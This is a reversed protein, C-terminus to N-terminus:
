RDHQHRPASRAQSPHPDSGQESESEDDSMDEDEGFNQPFRAGLKGASNTDLQKGTDDVDPLEALLWTEYLLTLLRELPGFASPKMFYSSAGLMYAKKVDDADASASMVITPIVRYRPTSKLYELLTFGDGDPMKLDTILLSPYPFRERDSFAGEGKVYAIAENGSHVCRVHSAIGIRSLALVVLDLADLDDDVLLINLLRKDPM